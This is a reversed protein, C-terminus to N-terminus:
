LFFKVTNSHVYPLKGIYLTCNGDVVILGASMVFPSDTNYLLLQAVKLCGLSYSLVTCHVSEGRWGIKFTIYQTLTERVTSCHFIGQADSFPLPDNTIETYRQNEHHCIMYHDRVM